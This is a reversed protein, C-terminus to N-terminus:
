PQGVLTFAAWDRPNPHSQMTMLMAQRLANAKDPNQQLTKYFERMLTATPADPVAWLSVVVSAAGASLFSRALGIVGDGTIEGRGTNCASLVVLSASLPLPLVQRATLFGNPQISSAKQPDPALAIASQLGQLNDLIGHTALHIVKAQPMQALVNAKTAQSGILPQAKLVQAIALAEQEAGPLETLREPRQNWAFQLQPMTPNGVVLAPSLSSPDGLRQASIQSLDLAQVSPTTLITHSQILYRGDPAQLAAFPVLYLADQPVFIVRDSPQTPLQEAIPQILLQYLQQLKQATPPQERGTFPDNLAIPELGRERVGIEARSDRVLDNLTQKGLAKSLDVARFVVDGTPKVVWIFLQSEKRPGSGLRLLGTDMFGVIDPYITSYVVLTANHAKATRRIKALNPPALWLQSPQNIGLRIALRGVSARGRGAEAMELAEGFRKQAVLTEQLHRHLDASMDYSGVISADESPYLNENNPDDSQRSQTHMVLAKRLAKEAEAYDGSRLYFAGLEGYFIDDTESGFGHGRDGARFGKGLRKQLAIATVYDGRWAHIISLRDILHRQVPAQLYTPLDASLDLTMQFLAQTKTIDGLAAYSVAMGQIFRIAGHIDQLGLAPGILQNYIEIAAEPQGHELYLTALRDLPSVFDPSQLKPTLAIAQKQFQVAGAVDNISSYASALNSLVDVREPTVANGVLALYRTYAAIAAPYNQRVLTHFGLVSLIAPSRTPHTQLQQELFDIGTGPQLRDQAMAMKSLVDSEATKDGSQRALDLASQYLDLANQFRGFYQHAEAAKVIAEIEKATDKAQRAQQRAMPYESLHSRFYQRRCDLDTVCDDARAPVSLPLLALSIAAVSALWPYVSKWPMTGSPRVKLLM